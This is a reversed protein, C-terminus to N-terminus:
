TGRALLDDIGVNERNHDPYPKQNETQGIGEIHAADQLRM